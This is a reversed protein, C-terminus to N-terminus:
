NELQNVSIASVNATFSETYKQPRDILLMGNYDIGVVTYTEGEFRVQRGIWEQKMNEIHQKWTM